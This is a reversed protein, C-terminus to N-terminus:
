CSFCKKNAMFIFGLYMCQNKVSQLHMPVLPTQKYVRGKVLVQGEALLHEMFSCLYVEPIWHVFAHDHMCSICPFSSAIKTIKYGSDEPEKALLQDGPSVRSFQFKIVM